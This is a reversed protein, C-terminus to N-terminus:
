KVMGEIAQAIYPEHNSTFMRVSVLPEKILMNPDRIEECAIKNSDLICYEPKSNM